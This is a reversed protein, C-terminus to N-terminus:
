RAVERRTIKEIIGDPTGIPQTASRAAFRLPEVLEGLAPTEDRNM